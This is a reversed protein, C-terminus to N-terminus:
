FGRGVGKKGVARLRELAATAPAAETSRVISELEVAVAANVANRSEPRRLTVLAVHPAPMELTVVGAPVESM